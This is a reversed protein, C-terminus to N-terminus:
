KMNIVPYLCNDWNFINKKSLQFLCEHPINNKLVQCRKTNPKAAFKYRM